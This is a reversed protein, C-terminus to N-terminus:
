GSAARASPSTTPLEGVPTPSGIRKPGDPDIRSVSADRNNTVWVTDNGTTVARPETGLPVTGARENTQPDIRAVAQAGKEAVWVWRGGTDVDSPNSGHGLPIALPPRGELPDLRYLMDTAESVTWVSGFGIAVSAPSPVPVRFTVRHEARDIADIENGDHAAVWM